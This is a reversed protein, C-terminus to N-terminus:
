IINHAEFFIHQTHFLNFHCCLAHCDILAAHKCVQDNRAYWAAKVRRASLLEVVLLKRAERWYQGYPAFAVNKLDYTLRKTGPSVPRTCCDLDHGKLAECAAEASSMVVASAKGFQLQMVPGHIQALDRMTRHPLPGLQHLNGLLPVKAPGPPLKLGKTSLSGWTNSLLLLIPVAALLALFVPLWVQPLSVLMSTSLLCSAMM